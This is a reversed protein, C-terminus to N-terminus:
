TRICKNKRQAIKCIAKTKDGSCINSYEYAEAWFGCDWTGEEGETVTLTWFLIFVSLSVVDWIFSITCLEPLLLSSAFSGADSSTSTSVSRQVLVFLFDGSQKELLFRWSNWYYRFFQPCLLCLEVLFCCSFFGSPDFYLSLIGFANKVQKMLGHREQSNSSLLTYM